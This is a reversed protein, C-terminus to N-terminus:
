VKTGAVHSADKQMADMGNHRLIFLSQGLGPQERASNGKSQDGPKNLLFDPLLKKM